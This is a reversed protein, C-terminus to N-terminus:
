AEFYDLLVIVLELLYQSGFSISLVTVLTPLPVLIHLGLLYGLNLFFHAGLFNEIPTLSILFSLQYFTRRLFTFGVVM